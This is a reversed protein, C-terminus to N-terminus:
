GYALVRFSLLQHQNLIEGEPTTAGITRGRGDKLVFMDDHKVFTAAKAKQPQRSNWYRTADEATTLTKQPM